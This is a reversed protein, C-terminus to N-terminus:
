EFVPPWLQAISVEWGPLVEPISLTDRDTLVTSEGDAGYVTVNRKDPDILVGYRAGHQLFEEIRAKQRTLRETSSKIEAVLDPVLDAYSRPSQKLREACVCSVDPSLTKGDPMKFGTSADFVRGLRRPYVWLRLLYSFQSGVEGSIADSPSMTIMEGDWLEFQWDPHEAQIQELNQVTLTM